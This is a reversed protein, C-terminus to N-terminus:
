ALPVNHVSGGALSPSATKLYRPDSRHGTVRAELAAKEAPTVRASRSVAKGGITCHVYRLLDAAKSMVNLGNM